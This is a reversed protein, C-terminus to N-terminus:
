IYNIDEKDEENLNKIHEQINENLKESIATWDKPGNERV